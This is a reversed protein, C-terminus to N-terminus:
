GYTQFREVDQLFRERAMGIVIPITLVHRDKDFTINDQAFLLDIEQNSVTFPLEVEETYKEFRQFEALWKSIRLMIGNDEVHIRVDEARVGGTDVVLWVLSKFAIDAYPVETPQKDSPKLRV